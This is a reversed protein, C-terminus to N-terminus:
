DIDLQNLVGEVAEIGDTLGTRTKKLGALAEKYSFINDQVMKMSKEVAGIQTDLQRNYGDAEEGTWFDQTRLEDRLSKLTELHLSLQDKYIQMRDIKEQYFAETYRVIGGGIFGGAALGGAITLSM